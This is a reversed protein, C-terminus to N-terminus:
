WAQPARTSAILSMIEGILARSVDGGGDVVIVDGPRVFELAKHIFLNDGPATRVTVATGAM